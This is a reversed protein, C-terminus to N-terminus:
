GVSILRCATRPKVGCLMKDKIILQIGNIVITGNQGGARGNGGKCEINDVPFTSANYEIAIRGGGGGGARSGGSMRGNGGNASIISSFLGKLVDTKIYISGGSGGGQTSDSEGNASISGNIELTNSINLIIAGGGAGGAGGSGLDIPEILSGYTSTASNWGGKGGYSGGIDCSKGAGPGERLPYGLGSASIFSTDDITLNESDIKINANIRSGSLIGLNGGVINLFTEKPGINLM